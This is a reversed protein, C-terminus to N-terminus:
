GKFRTIAARRRIKPVVVRSWLEGSAPLCPCDVFRNSEFAEFLTKLALIQFHQHKGRIIAPKCPTQARHCYEPTSWSGYRCWYWAHSRHPMSAQSDPISHWGAWSDSGKPTFKKCKQYKSCLPKGSAINTSNILSDAVRSYSATASCTCTGGGLM